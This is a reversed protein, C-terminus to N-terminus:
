TPLCNKIIESQAEELALIDKESIQYGLSALLEIYLSFDNVADAYEDKIEESTLHKETLFSELGDKTCLAALLIPLHGITSRGFLKKEYERIEDQINSGIENTIELSRHPQKLQCKAPSDLSNFFECILPRMTFIGCHGSFQNGEEKVFFPCPIKLNLFKKQDQDKFPLTGLDKAFDFYKSSYEFLKAALTQLDYGEALLRNLLVFAEGLTIPVMPFHCCAGCGKACTIQEKPFKQSFNTVALQAEKQYSDYKNLVYPILKEVASKYDMIRGEILVNGLEM